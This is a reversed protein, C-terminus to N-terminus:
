GSRATALRPDAAFDAVSFELTETPFACYAQISDRGIKMRWSRSGTPQIEAFATCSLVAVNAGRRPDRVSTYRIITVDAARAADALDQCPVYDVPDCWLDAEALFPSASLDIAAAAALAVSFATHDAAERPPEIEPSEAYFLLRHFAMEALATTQEEAAYFVGQTIGARRFRSGRPCAAGYRFPTSLLYHLHRCEAPIPPKSAELVSELLTQEALTDVLKMTSVKHQAEVLRWATAKYPRAESRLADPTLTHSSM